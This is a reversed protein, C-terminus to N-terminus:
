LHHRVQLSRLIKRRDSPHWRNAMIPDVQQLRRYLEPTDLADLEASSEPSQQREVSENKSILTDHWLLSQM